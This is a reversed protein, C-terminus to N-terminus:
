CIAEASRRPARFDPVVEVSEHITQSIPIEQPERTSPVSM